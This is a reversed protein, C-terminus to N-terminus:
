GGTGSDGTETDDGRSDGLCGETDSVTIEALWSIASGDVTLEQHDNGVLVALLNHAGDDLPATLALFESATAGLVDSGEKLHWHGQGDTPALGYNEESLDYNDIDVVATFLPCYVDTTSSRPFILRVSPDADVATDVGDPATYDPPPCGMLTLLFWTAM